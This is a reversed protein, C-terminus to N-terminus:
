TEVELEKLLELEVHSPVLRGPVGNEGVAAPVSIASKRRSTPNKTVLRIKTKIIISETYKGHHRKWLYRLMKVLIVM